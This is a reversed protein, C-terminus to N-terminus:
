DLLVKNPTSAKHLHRCVLFDSSGAHDYISIISKKKKSYSCNGAITDDGFESVIYELPLSEWLYLREFTLM